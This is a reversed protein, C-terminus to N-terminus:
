PHGTLHRYISRLTAQSNRHNEIVRSARQYPLSNRTGLQEIQSLYGTLVRRTLAIGSNKNYLIIGTLDLGNRHRNNIIYQPHHGDHVLAAEVKKEVCMQLELLEVMERVRLNRETLSNVCLRSHLDNMRIEDPILPVALQPIVPAPAPPAAVEEEIHQPPMQGYRARIERLAEAAQAAMGGGPDCTTTKVLYFVLYFVVLCSVVVSQFAIELFRKNRERESLTLYLFFFAFLYFLILSFFFLISPEAPVQMIFEIIISLCLDFHGFFVYLYTKM